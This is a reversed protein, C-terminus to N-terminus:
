LIKIIAFFRTIKRQNWSFKIQIFMKGHYIIIKWGNYWFPNFSVHNTENSIRFEYDRIFAHLTSVSTTELLYACYNASCNKIESLRSFIQWSRKGKGRFCRITNEKARKMREFRAWRERKEQRKKNRTIAFLPYIYTAHICLSYDGM